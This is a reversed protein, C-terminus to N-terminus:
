DIPNEETFEDSAWQVVFVDEYLQVEDGEYLKKRRRTEVEGNVLVEGGQILMKAQGGTEVGCKKLFQDLCIFQPQEDEDPPTQFNSEHMM